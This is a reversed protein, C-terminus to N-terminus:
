GNVYHIKMTFNFFNGSFISGLVRKCLTIIHMKSVMLCLSLARSVGILFFSSFECVFLCSSLVFMCVDFLVYTPLIGNMFITRDVETQVLFPMTYLCTGELFLLTLPKRVLPIRIYLKTDVQTYM